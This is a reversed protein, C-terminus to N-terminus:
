LKRKTSFFSNYAVIKMKASNLHQSTGQIKVVYEDAEVEEKNNDHHFRVLISLPSFIRLMNSSFKISSSHQKIHALEHLLVAEKEKKNMIEIMGTSMFISSKISRFSFASPNAKDVAYVVPKKINLTRSYKEIFGNIERDRIRSKRNTLIFYSPIAVFGGIISVALTAPLAYMMIAPISNSCSFCFVGCATQTSLFIFPFFLTTLHLYILGVKSKTSFNEKKILILSFVAIFLSIIVIGMKDPTILDVAQFCSPSSFLHQM